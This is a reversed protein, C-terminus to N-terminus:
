QEAQEEVGTSPNGFHQLHARFVDVMADHLQVSFAPFVALHWDPRLSFPGNPTPAFVIPWRASLIQDRTCFTRGQRPTGGSKAQSQCQSFRETSTRRELVSSDSQMRPTM